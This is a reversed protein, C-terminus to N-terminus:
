RKKITDKEIDKFFGLREEDTIKNRKWKTYFYMGRFKCLGFNVNTVKEKKMLDMEEVILDM